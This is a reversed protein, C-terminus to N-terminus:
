LFISQWSPMSVTHLYAYSSLVRQTRSNLPLIWQTINVPNNFVRIPEALPSSFISLWSPMVNEMQLLLSSLYFGTPTLTNLLELSVVSLTSTFVRCLCM